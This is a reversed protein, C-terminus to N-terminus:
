SYSYPVREVMEYDNEKGYTFFEKLTFNDRKNKWWDYYIDRCLFHHKKPVKDLYPNQTILPLQYTNGLHPIFTDLSVVRYRTNFPHAGYKRILMYKEKVYHLNILKHAFHRNILIPGYFSLNENRPKPHLFFPIYHQSEFGLQICDWDYPIKNMLYEWDFHWYEILNLDYDDEFLILHKEDTNDLWHKIIELTSLTISCALRHNRNNILQPFHLRDKWSDYDDVLYKSGSFRTVNTLNWKDFQKEMYRRRDVESDLNLYYISPIGKLKNSM